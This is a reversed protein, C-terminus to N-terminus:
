DRQANNYADLRQYERILAAAAQGWSRGNHGRWVLRGTPIDWVEYVRRDTEPSKYWTMRVRQDKTRKHGETIVSM